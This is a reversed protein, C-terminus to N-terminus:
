IVISASYFTLSRHLKASAGGRFGLAPRDSERPLAAVWPDIARWGAGLPEENAVILSPRAVKTVSPLGLKLFRLM